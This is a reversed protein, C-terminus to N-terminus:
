SRKRSSRRDAAHRRLVRRDDAHQRRGLRAVGADQHPAVGPQRRQAQELRSHRVPDSRPGVVQREHDARRLRLRRLRRRLQRQRQQVPRRVAADRRRRRAAGSSGQRVQAPRHGHAGRRRRRRLDREGAAQRPGGQDRPAREVAVDAPGQLQHRRPRDAGEQVAGARRAAGRVAPLDVRRAAHGADHRVDLLDVADERRGRRVECLRRSQRAHRIRHRRRRLGADAPLRARRLLGEGNRRIRSHGRGLELHEAPSDVEAPERRACRHERRHARLGEAPGAAGPELRASDRHRRGPPHRAENAAPATTAAPPAAPQNCAAAAFLACLTIVARRM